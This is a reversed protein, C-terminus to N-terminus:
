PSPVRWLVADPGENVAIYLLGPPGHAFAVARQDGPIAFMTGNIQSTESVRFIAVNGAQGMGWPLPGGFVVGGTDYTALVLVGAPTGRAPLVDVVRLVGASVLPMAASLGSAADRRDVVLQGTWSQGAFYVFNKEDSGARVPDAGSFMLGGGSQDLLVQHTSVPGLGSTSADFGMWGFRNALGFDSSAIGGLTCGNTCRATVLMRNVPQYIRPLPSVILDGGLAQAGSGAVLQVSSVTTGVRYIRAVGSSGGGHVFAVMPADPVPLATMRTITTTGSLQVELTTPAGIPSLTTTLHEVNVNTGALGSIALANLANGAVAQVRMNNAWPMSRLQSPLAGGDGTWGELISAGGDLPERLTVVVPAPPAAVSSLGTMGLFRSNPMIALAPYVPGGSSGGATGGGAGGAVGGGAM